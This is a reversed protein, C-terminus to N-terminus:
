LASPTSRAAQPNHRPHTPSTSLVSRRSSDTWLCIPAFRVRDPIRPQVPPGPNLAPAPPRRIAAGRGWGRGVCPSPLRLTPCPQEEHSLSAQGALRDSRRRMIPALSACSPRHHGRRQPPLHPDPRNRVTGQSRQPFPFSAEVTATLGFVSQPSGSGIRSERNFRRGRISPRPPHDESRLGRGWGRGVRPSPLRM